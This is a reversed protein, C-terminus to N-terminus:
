RIASMKAKREQYIIVVDLLYATSRKRQPHRLPCLFHLDKREEVRGELNCSSRSEFKASAQTGAGTHGPVFTNHVFFDARDCSFAPFPMQSIHLTLLQMDLNTNTGSKWKLTPMNETRYESYMNSASEHMERIRERNKELFFIPNCGQRRVQKRPFPITAPSSKGKMKAKGVM